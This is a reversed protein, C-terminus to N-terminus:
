LLRTLTKKKYSQAFEQLTPRDTPAAFLSEKESNYAKESKFVRILKRARILTKYTLSKYATNARFVTGFVTQESCRNRVSDRLGM